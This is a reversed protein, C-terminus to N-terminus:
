RVERNGCVVMGENGVQVAVAQILYFVWPELAELNVGHSVVECCLPDFACLVM